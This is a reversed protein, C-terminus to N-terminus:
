FPCEHTPQLYGIVTQSKELKFPQNIFSSTRKTTRTPISSLYFATMLKTTKEPESTAQRDDNSCACVVDDKVTNSLQDCDTHFLTSSNNNTTNTTQLCKEVWQDVQENILQREDKIDEEANNVDHEHNEHEINIDEPNAACLSLVYDGDDDDDDNDNTLDLNKILRIENEIDAIHKLIARSNTKKLKPSFLIAPPSPLKINTEDLPLIFPNKRSSILKPSVINTSPQKDKRQKHSRENELIEEFELSFHDNISRSSSSRSHHQDHMQDNPLKVTSNKTDTSSRQYRYQVTVKPPMRSTKKQRTLSGIESTVTRPVLNQEANTTRKSNKQIVLPSPITSIKKKLKKQRCRQKDNVLVGDSSTNNGLSSNSPSPSPSSASSSSSSSSDIVRSSSLSFGHGSDSQHLIVSSAPAPTRVVPPPPPSPSDTLNTNTNSITIPFSESHMLASPSIRFTPDYIGYEPQSICPILESAQHQCLNPPEIFISSRNNLSTNGIWPNTRIKSRQKKSLSTTTTWLSSNSSSIISPNPTSYQSSNLHTPHHLSQQQQQQHYHHHHQCERRPSCTALTSSYNRNSFSTQQELLLKPPLPPPLPPPIVPSAQQSIRCQSCSSFTNDHPSRTGVITNVLEAHRALLVQTRSHQDDTVTGNIDEYSCIDYHCDASASSEQHTKKHISKSNSKSSSINNKRKSVLSNFYDKFKM